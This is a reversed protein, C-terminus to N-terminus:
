NLVRMVATASWKGGRRTTVGRGNLHDAIRQLTWGVRRKAEVTDRVSERFNQSQQSNAEWAAALAKNANPNGLKVGRKKLRELADKTRQSTAEAEAQAVAALVHITLKNAAPNDCCVFNVGSDMLTATFAVNRSLRDLKAVVLTAKHKKCSAIAAALQPRASNRGSEVEEFSAITEADISRKYARVAAKQADIGLGDIGQERTSVRFYTVIKM